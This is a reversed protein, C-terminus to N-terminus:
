VFKLYQTIRYEENIVIVREIQLQFEHGKSTFTFTVPITPLFGRTIEPEVHTLVISSWDIGKSKGEAIVRRFSAEVEPVLRTSYENAFETRAEELFRGYVVGNDEMMEHFESLSPFLERFEDASNKQLAAVVRSALMESSTIRDNKLAPASVFSSMTMHILIVILTTKM